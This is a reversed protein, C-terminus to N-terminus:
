SMYRTLILSRCITAPIPVSFHATDLRHAAPRPPTNSSDPRSGPRVADYDNAEVCRARRPEVQEHEAVPGIWYWVGAPLTVSGPEDGFASATPAIQQLPNPRSGYLERPGFM